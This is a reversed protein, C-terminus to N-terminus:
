SSGVAYIHRGFRTWTLMAGFLLAIALFIWVGVPLGGGAGSMLGRIWGLEDPYIPQNGGVGKAVGRLAGWLGLTVIFSPLRLRSTVLAGILLGVALGTAVGGLAAVAGPAGRELLWAVIMTGLAITSGVSLDIGGSIIIITAGVAATGVVATQLLMLRHNEWSVFPGGVLVAFLTWAALLGIVPGLTQLATAAHAHLRSM